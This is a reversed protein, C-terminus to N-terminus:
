GTPDIELGADIFAILDGRARVMGFRVAHGKGKNSEYGVVKLKNSEIRKANDFTKDLKGDVVCIIEYDYRIQQLIKEIQRLDRVITREQKYAPVIVSLLKTKTM